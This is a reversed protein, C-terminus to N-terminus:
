TNNNSLKISSLSKSSTLYKDDNNHNHDYQLNNDINNIKDIFNNKQNISIKIDFEDESSNKDFIVPKSKNSRNKINKFM